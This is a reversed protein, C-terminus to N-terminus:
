GPTGAMMGLRLGSRITLRIVDHSTQEEPQLAGLAAQLAWLDDAGWDVVDDPGITSCGGDDVLLVDGNDLVVVGRERGRIQQVTSRPLVPLGLRLAIWHEPDLPTAGKGQNCGVCATVLNSPRDSGGAVRPTVHDVQLEVTPAKAGCYRCTFGDRKLIKFRLRKSLAMASGSRSGRLGQGVEVPTSVDDSEHSPIADDSPALRAPERM